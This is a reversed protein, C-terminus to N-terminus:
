VSAKIASTNGPLSVLNVSRIKSSYGSLLDYYRSWLMIGGYKDSNIVSPLVESILADPPMYGSGAASPSAPLGVFFKTATVSSTWLYWSSLLNVANSSYYQCPPNNYFQVWVYDFVGTDLAKGMWADPYPCQPAASLYVKQEEQSYDSLMQALEDWYQTTGGEIDFDIGDLVADGLPRSSSSGGLFNNWLYDAVQQADETSVLTYSGSAGGLSLFVKIRQSQCAKIDNSISVCGGSDPDCHGALNLDPTQFNGFQYLFGVVVIDYNGTSCAEALSGELGNQGWYVAISGIGANSTICLAALILLLLTQTKKTAM